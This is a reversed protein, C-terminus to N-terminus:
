FPARSGPLKSSYYPFIRKALIGSVTAEKLPFPMADSSLRARPTATNQEHARTLGIRAIDHIATIINILKDGGNGSIAANFRTRLSMVATDQGSLCLDGIYPTDSRNGLRSFLRIAQSSPKYFAPDEM